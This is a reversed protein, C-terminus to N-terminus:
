GRRSGKKAPKEIVPVRVVTTPVEVESAEILEVRAGRGGLRALTKAADKVEQQASQGKMAVLEGGERVLPLTWKVLKDLAAVARATVVDFERKGHLEEARARVVEVNTLGLDSVAEELFNVRRQMTEILTVELDGRAIAIVLGPLGAGSGVDALTEVLGVPGLARVMLACNIVHREWIRDVERPGILGQEAGRTQLIHAYQCAMDLRPGFLDAALSALHAPPELRM